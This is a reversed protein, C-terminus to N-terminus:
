VSSARGKGPLVNRNLNAFASTKKIKRCRECVYSYVIDNASKQYTKWAHLGIKCLFMYMLIRDSELM